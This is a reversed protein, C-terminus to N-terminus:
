QYIYIKTAMQVLLSFKTCEYFSNVTFGIYYEHKCPITSLQQVCTSSTYLFTKTM